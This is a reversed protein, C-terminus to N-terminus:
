LAQLGLAIKSSSIQAEQTSSIPQLPHPLQIALIEMSQLIQLGKATIQKSGMQLRLKIEVRHKPLLQIPIQLTAM